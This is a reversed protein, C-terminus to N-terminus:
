RPAPPAGRYPPYGPEYQRQAQVYPALREFAPALLRQREEPDYPIVASGVLEIWREVFRKKMPAGVGGFTPDRPQYYWEALVGSQFGGVHYVATMEHALREYDVAPGPCDRFKLLVWGRTSLEETANAMIKKWALKGGHEEIMAQPLFLREGVTPRMELLTSVPQPSTHRRDGSLRGIREVLPDYRSQPLPMEIAAVPRHLYLPPMVDRSLEVWPVILLEAPAVQDMHWPTLPSVGAPHSFWLPAVREALGSYFATNYRPFWARDYLPGGPAHVLHFAIFDDLVSMVLDDAFPLPGALNDRQLTLPLAGDPDFVSLNPAFFGLGTEWLRLRSFAEILGDDKGRRDIVRIGNCSLYPASTHTWHVELRDSGIRRWEAPMPRGPLPLAMTDGLVSELGDRVIRRVLRPSSLFYWNWSQPNRALAEGAGPRLRITIITGAPVGQVRRLEIVENALSASFEVGDPETISRTVVHIGDGLLFGALAGIGFRGARLIRSHGDSDEYLQKWASSRRFSAGARLFYQVVVEPTMGIGYDQVTLTYRGGEQRLTVEVDAAGAAPAAHAGPTRALYEDRERVADVANQCLERVGIEPRNGYLPQVLLDLLEVAATFRAEAPVFGFDRSREDASELNSRVRRLALSLRDLGERTFRGFVEGLVAWAMDLEGQIGLLWRRIRLFTHIDRPAAEVYLAEPDDHVASIEVIDAHADWEGRSEPSSIRYVMRYQRPARGPHIQIYDAIRLVAMLYVAHVNRQVPLRYSARLYDVMVRLPLGHSRAVAGALDAIHPPTSGLTLREGPPGPYGFRAIEHALRAHHRRLFEGVLLYDAPTLRSLDDLDPIRVPGANEGFMRTLTRGDWRQAEVLYDEWLASWPRDGLGPVVQPSRVLAAFGDESLHMASDHLIIALILVAVDEPGLVEWSADTILGVSTVLTEQIHAVGHDTYAPFFPMRNRLFLPSFDRVVDAVCARLEETLRDLVTHPIEIRPPPSSFM